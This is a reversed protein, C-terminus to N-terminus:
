KNTAPKKSSVEPHFFQYQIAENIGTSMVGIVINGSELYWVEGKATTMDSNFGSKGYIKNTQKVLTTYVSEMDEDSKPLYLWAISVLKEEDDFMYKITGKLGLYEKNYVYTTGKFSSYYSDQLEGELARIDEPTSNWTIETFPCTNKTQVSSCGTLFLIISTLFLLSTIFEHLHKM